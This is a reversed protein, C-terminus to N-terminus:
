TQSKLKCRRGRRHFQHGIFALAKSAQGVKQLLGEASREVDQVGSRESALDASLLVRMLEPTSRIVDHAEIKLAIESEVLDAEAERKRAEAAQIRAEAEAIRSQFVQSRAAEVASSLEVVAKDAETHRLRAGSIRQWLSIMRNVVLIASGTGGFAAFALGIPDEAFGLIIEVPSRYTVRAVRIQRSLRLAEAVAQAALPPSHGGFLGALELTLEGARPTEESAGRSGAPLAKQRDIVELVASVFLLSDLNHFQAGFTGPTPRTQFDRMTVQVRGFGTNVAASTTTM